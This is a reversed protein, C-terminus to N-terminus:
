FPHRAHGVHYGKCFKCRYVQLWEPRYNHSARLSRIHAAARGHTTHRQKGECGRRRIHRKSSM